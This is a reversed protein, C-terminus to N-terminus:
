RYYEALCLVMMATAYVRGGDEGWADVPDWSGAVAGADKPRQNAVIAAKMAGNWETWSEGGVQSFALTGFYWYYMDLSGDAWLPPSGLCLEAGKRVPESTGPDEGALIRCLIGVATMSQSKEAPFRDQRDGPRAPRGGRDNYGVRGTDPDTMHDIWRRAGEFADPDVELGAYKGSRLAMVCWGTVSTDCEGGRPEYRWALFPNRARALFGLAATAPGKYRPNRTRWSAECMALTAIAHDYMFDHATRTGFLGDDSQTRILYRLGARVTRAYKSGKRDDRDLYGSQLFALVALGTVGVDHLAHGAGDCRGGAPDHKMFADCDWRGDAGIDQHDALWRLGLEVANETADSGGREVLQEGGRAWRGRPHRDGIGIAAGQFSIPEKTFGAPRGRVRPVPPPLPAPAPRREGVQIRVGRAKVPHAAVYEQVLTRGSAARGAPYPAEPPTGGLALSRAGARFLLDLTRIVHGAATGPRVHVSACSDPDAAFIGRCAGFVGRLDLATDDPSLRLAHIAQPGDEEGHFRKARFVAMTGEAAGVEPLVAFHIRCAGVKPDDCTGLAWALVEFPLSPHVRFVVHRESNGDPDRWGPVQCEAGLHARLGDLDVEGSATVIRGDATLAIEVARPPADGITGVRVLGSAPVAKRPPSEPPADRCGLLLGAMLLSRSM